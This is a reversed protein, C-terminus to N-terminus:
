EESDTVVEIDSVSGVLFLRTVEARAAELSRELAAVRSEARTLQARNVDELTLYTDQYQTHRKTRHGLEDIYTADTISGVRAKHPCVLQSGLALEYVTMYAVAEDDAPHQLAHQKCYAGGKGYGAKRACGYRSMKEWVTQACYGERSM